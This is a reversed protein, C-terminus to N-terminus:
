AEGAEQAFLAYNKLELSMNAQACKMVDDAVKATRKADGLGIGVFARALFLALGGVLVISDIEGSEDENKASAENMANSLDTAIAAMAAFQAQETRTM